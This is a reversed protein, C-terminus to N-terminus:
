GRVRTIEPGAGPDLALATLETRNSVGLKSYINHLHLKVTGESLNLQRAIVKNPMGTAALGVIQIERQTLAEEMRKQDNRRRTERQLAPNVLDAPLWKRGCAVARMCDILTEPASQKLVIGWAGAAMAEVVDKDSLVATLFIAKSPINERGALRLVDIGSLQPMNVDLVAIAPRLRRMIELAEAGNAASAAVDFDPQGAILDGLAQLILPHDDALLVSLTGSGSM